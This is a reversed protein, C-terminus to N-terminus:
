HRKNLLNEGNEIKLVIHSNEIEKIKNEAPIAKNWLINFFHQQEEIFSKINSYIIENMEKKM